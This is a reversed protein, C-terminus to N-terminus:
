PHTRQEYITDRHTSYYELAKRVAHLIARPTVSAGTFQDFEGGDKRITWQM